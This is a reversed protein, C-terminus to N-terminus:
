FCMFTFMNKKLRGRAVIVTMTRILFFFFFCYWFILSFGTLVRPSVCIMNLANRYYALRRSGNLHVNWKNKDGFYIYIHSVHAHAPTYSLSTIHNSHSIAETIISFSIEHKFRSVNCLDTLRAVTWGLPWTSFYIWKVQIFKTLPLSYHARVIINLNYKHVNLLLLFFDM